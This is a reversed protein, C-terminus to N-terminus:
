SGTPRPRGADDFGATARDVSTSAQVRNVLRLCGASIALAIALSVLQVLEPAADERLAFYMPTAIAGHGVSLAVATAPIILWQWSRPLKVTLVYATTAVTMVFTTNTLGVWLPIDWIVLPQDGYYIWADGFWGVVMEMLDIALFLGLWMAWWVRASLPGKRLEGLFLIVFPIILPLYLLQIMVPLDRGFATLYGVQDIEPYYVHLLIDGLAEYPAAIQTGIAVLLPTWRGRRAEVITWALIVAFTAATGILLVTQLTQPMPAAAVDDPLTDDWWTM